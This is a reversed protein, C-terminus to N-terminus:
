NCLISQSTSAVYIVHYICSVCCTQISGHHLQKGQLQEAKQL